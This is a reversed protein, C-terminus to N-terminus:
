EEERLAIGLRQLHPANECALYSAKETASSNIHTHWAWVPVYFADGRQWPVERGGIISMGRGELVYIVTEYNHRHRRTRQGPELGGITMSIVRSPLDVIHVPHQRDRSLAAEDGSPTGVVNAHILREPMEVSLEAPVRGFDASSPGTLM